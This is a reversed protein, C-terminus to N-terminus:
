LLETQKTVLKMTRAQFLNMKVQHPVTLNKEARAMEGYGAHGSPRVPM